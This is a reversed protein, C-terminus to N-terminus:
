AALAVELAAPKRSRNLFRSEVLIWSAYGALCSLIFVFPLLLWPSAAPFYWFLLKQIPWGYLYIGYSIDPSNKFRNLAPIRAFALWFLAYAGFTALAIRSLAYRSMLGLVVAMAVVAWTGKLPLSNRFLYFCAGASFFALLRVFDNPNLILFHLPLFSIQKFPVPWLMLALCILLLSPWIVKQKAPGFLGLLAVLAYCRFEYAITWLAGNVHAYPTGPYAGKIGEPLRLLLADTLLSGYDLDAFYGQVSYVAFPAIVLVSIFLAVAFGPYIREIRKKFFDSLNPKREWSKVILFGSLVFFGMVALGGFSVSAFFHHLLERRQDGDALEPAHSVLVLSALLLRLFNINNYQQNKTAQTPLTNQTSDEIYRM